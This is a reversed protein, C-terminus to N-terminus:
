RHNCKVIRVRLLFPLGLSSMIWLLRPQDVKIAEETEGLLPTKHFCYIASGSDASSPRALKFSSSLDPPRRWKIRVARSHLKPSCDNECMIIWLRSRGFWKENTASQEQHAEVVCARNWVYKTKETVSDVRKPPRRRTLTHSFVDIM